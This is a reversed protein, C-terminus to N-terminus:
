FHVSTIQHSLSLMTRIVVLDPLFYYFHIDLIPYLTEVNVTPLVKKMIITVLCHGGEPGEYLSWRRSVCVIVVNQVCMCHGGEPGM